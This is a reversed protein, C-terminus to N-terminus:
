TWQSLNWAKESDATRHELTFHNSRPSRWMPAIRRARSSTCKLGPEMSFSHYSM